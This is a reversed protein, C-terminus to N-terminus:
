ELEIRSSSHYKSFGPNKAFEMTGSFEPVTSFKVVFYKRGIPCVNQLFVEFFDSFEDFGHKEINSWKM